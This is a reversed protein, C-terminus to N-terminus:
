NFNIIDLALKYIGGSEKIILLCQKISIWIISFIGLLYFIFSSTSVLRKQKAELTYEAIAGAEIIGIETEMRDSKPLADMDFESDPPQFGQINKVGQLIYYNATILSQASPNRAYDNKQNTKYQQM